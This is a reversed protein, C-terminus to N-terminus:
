SPVEGSEPFLIDTVLATSKEHDEKTMSEAHKFCTDVLAYVEERTKSMTMTGITFTFLRRQAQEPGLEIALRAYALIILKNMSDM